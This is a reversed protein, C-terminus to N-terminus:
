PLSRISEVEDMTARDRRSQMLHKATLTFNLPRDAPRPPMKAKIEKIERLERAYPDSIASLIIPASLTDFIRNPARSVHRAARERDDVRILGVDWATTAGLGSKPEPIVVRTAGATNNHPTNNCEFVVRTEGGYDAGCLADSVGLSPIQAREPGFGIVTSMRKFGGVPLSEAALLSGRYAARERGAPVDDEARRFFRNSPERERKSIEM